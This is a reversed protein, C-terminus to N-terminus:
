SLATTSHLDDSIKARFREGFTPLHFDQWKAM